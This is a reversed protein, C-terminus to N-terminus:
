QRKAAPVLGFGADICTNLQALTLPSLCHVLLLHGNHHQAQAIAFGLVESDRRTGDLAVLIRSLSTEM